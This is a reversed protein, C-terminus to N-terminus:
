LTGLIAAVIAGNMSVWNLTERLFKLPEQHQTNNFLKFLHEQSTVKPIFVCFTFITGGKKGDCFFTGEVKLRKQFNYGLGGKGIILTTGLQGIVLRCSGCLLLKM